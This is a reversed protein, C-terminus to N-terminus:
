FITTIKFLTHLNFGTIRLIVILFPWLLKLPIKIKTFKLLRSVSRTFSAASQVTHTVYDIQDSNGNHLKKDM